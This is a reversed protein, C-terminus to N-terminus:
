SKARYVILLPPPKRKIPGQVWAGKWCPMCGPSSLILRALRVSGLLLGALGQWLTM